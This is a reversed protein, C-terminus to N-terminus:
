PTPTGGAIPEVTTLYLDLPEASTNVATGDPQRELDPYDEEATGVMWWSATPPTFQAGPQLTLHSLAITVPAPPLVHADSIHFTIIPTDILGSSSAGGVSGLFTGELMAGLETAPEDGANHRSVKAGMPIVVADGGHLAFATEAPIAEREGPTTGDAARMVIVPHDAQYTLTGSEVFLLNPGEALELGVRGGPRYTSRYIALLSPEAPLEDAVGAALALVAGSAAPTASVSPSANQTGTPSVLVAPEPTGEVAPIAVPVDDHRGPRQPGFLYVSGALVLLLLAATAIQTLPWRRSRPLVPAAPQWLGVPLALIRGNPSQPVAPTVGPIVRTATAMLEERAHQVFGPDPPPVRDLAHMRRLTEALESDSGVPPTDEHLVADWLHELRAGFRPDTVAAV